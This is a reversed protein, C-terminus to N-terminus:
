KLSMTRISFELKFPRFYRKSELDQFDSSFGGFYRSRTETQASSVYELVSRRLWRCGTFHRWRGPTRQRFRLFNLNKWISYKFEYRLQPIGGRSKFYHAILRLPDLFLSFSPIFSSFNSPWPQPPPLPSSFPGLNSCKPPQGGSLNRFMESTLSRDSGYSCELFWQPIRSGNIKDASVLLIMFKAMSLLGFALISHTTNKSTPCKTCRFAANRM